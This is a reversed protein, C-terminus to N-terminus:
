AQEASTADAAEPVDFEPWWCLPLPSERACRAQLAQLSERPRRDVRGLRSTYATIRQIEMPPASPLPLDPDPTSMDLVAVFLARAEDAGSGMRSELREIRRLITRM